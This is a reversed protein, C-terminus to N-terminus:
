QFRHISQRLSVREVRVIIGSWVEVIVEVPVSDAGRVGLDWGFVSGNGFGFGLAFGFVVIINIVHFVVVGGGRTHLECAGEAGFIEGVVLALNLDDAHVIVV